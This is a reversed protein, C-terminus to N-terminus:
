HLGFQIGLTYAPMAPYDTVEGFFPTMRRSVFFVWRNLGLRIETFYQVPTISKLRYLRYEQIEGNPLEDRTEYQRRLRALLGGGASVFRGINDGREGFNVRLFGAVALNHAVFRERDHLITDPVVKGKEQLLDYQLTQYGLDATFSFTNSLKIKYRLGISVNNSNALKVRAGADESGINLGYGVFLHLFHTRNPGFNKDISDLRPEVDLITTQTLGSLGYGAVILLFLLKRM